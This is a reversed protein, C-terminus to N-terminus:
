ERERVVVSRTSIGKLYFFIFIFINGFTLYLIKFQGVKFVILFSRRFSKIQGFFLLVLDNQNSNQQM